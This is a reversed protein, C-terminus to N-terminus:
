LKAKSWKDFHQLSAEYAASYADREKEVHIRMAREQELERLIVEKTSLIDQYSAEMQLLKTRTEALLHELAVSGPSLASYSEYGVSGVREGYRTLSDLQQHHDQGSASRLRANEIQLQENIHILDNNSRSLHAIQASFDNTKSLLSKLQDELEEKEGEAQAYEYASYSVRNSRTKSTSEINTEENFIQEMRELELRIEEELESEVSTM